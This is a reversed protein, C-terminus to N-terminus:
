KNKILLILNVINIILFLIMIYDGQILYFINIGILMLVFLIITLGTIYKKIM